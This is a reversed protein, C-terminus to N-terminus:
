IQPGKMKHSKEREKGLISFKSLAAELREDTTNRFRMDTRKNQYANAVSHTTSTFNTPKDNSRVIPPHLSSNVITSQSTVMQGIFYALPLNRSFDLANLNRAQMLLDTMILNKTQGEPLELAQDFDKMIKLRRDVFQYNDAFTNSKTKNKAFPKVSESRERYRLQQVSGYEPNLEPIGSLHKRGIHRNM